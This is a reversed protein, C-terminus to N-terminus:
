AENHNNETMLWLRAQKHPNELSFPSQEIRKRERLKRDMKRAAPHRQYENNPLFALTLM